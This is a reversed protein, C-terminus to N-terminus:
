CAAPRKSCAAPLDGMTEALGVIVINGLAHDELEGSRFRHEIRHDM